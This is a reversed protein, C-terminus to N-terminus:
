REAKEMGEIFLRPFGKKENRQAQGSDKLEGWGRVEGGTQGGVLSRSRIGLRKKVIGQSERGVPNLVL